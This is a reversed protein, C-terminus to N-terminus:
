KSSICTWSVLDSAVWASAATLTLATTTTSVGMARVNGATSTVVNATCFPASPFATGGFTIVGTTATGGTGVNVSGALPTSGATVSPSTGFGSGVTPLADAKLTVGTQVDATRLVWSGNSPSTLFGKSSWNIGGGSGLSIANASGSQSTFIATVVLTGQHTTTAAASRWFGLTPESAFSVAPAGSTGNPFLTRSPSVGSQAAVGMGTLDVWVGGLCSYVRGSAPYISPSFSASTCSDGIAVDATAFSSLAGTYAVDGIAHATVPTGQAGRTVALTRSSVSNVVMAETGAFVVDGVSIGTGSSVNLAAFSPNAPMTTQLYVTNLAAQAFAGQAVLLLGALAFLSRRIM